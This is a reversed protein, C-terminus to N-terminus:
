SASMVWQAPMYFCCTDSAKLKAIEAAGVLTEPRPAPVPDQWIQPPM